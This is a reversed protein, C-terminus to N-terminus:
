IEVAALSLDDPKFGVYSVFKVKVSNFGSVTFSAMKSPYPFFSYALSDIGMCKRRMAKRPALEEAFHSYIVTRPCFFIGM